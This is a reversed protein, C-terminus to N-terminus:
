CVKIAIFHLVIDVDNAAKGLVGQFMGSAWEMSQMHLKASASKPQGSEWKQVVIDGMKMMGEAIRSLSNARIALSSFPVGLIQQKQDNTLNPLWSSTFVSGVKATINKM